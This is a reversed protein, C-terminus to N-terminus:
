KIVVIAKKSSVEKSDAVIRLIYVGFPVKRNKQDRGDWVYEIYGQSDSVFNAYDMFKGELDYIEVIFQSVRNPTVLFTFHDIQSVPFVKGNPFEVKVIELPIAEVPPNEFYIVRQNPEVGLDANGDADADILIETYNDIIVMQGSDNSMGGLNDPVCDPGSLNDGGTTLVAVFKISPYNQMSREESYYLTTWSIKVEMSGDLNGTNFTAHDEVEVQEAFNQNDSALMWFQPNDNTDWTALFFDPAQNYFKFARMWTNMDRMNEIGYDDYIDFYLIVNNDWSCGDVAVYLNNEDWTVKIQHLDNYEGWFSDYPSELVIGLSDVLINEDPTFD